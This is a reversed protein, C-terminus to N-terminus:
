RERTDNGTNIHRTLDSWYQSHQWGAGCYRDDTAVTLVPASDLVLITMWIVSIRCVAALRETGVYFIVPCYILTQLGSITTQSHCRIEARILTPGALLWIWDSLVECSYNWVTWAGAVLPCYLSQTVQGAFDLTKCWVHDYSRDLLCAAPDITLLDSLACGM